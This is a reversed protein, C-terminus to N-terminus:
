SVDEVRKTSHIFAHQGESSADRGRPDSDNIDAEQEKIGRHTTRRRKLRRETTRNQSQPLAVPFEASPASLKGRVDYGSRELAGLAKSAAKGSMDIV